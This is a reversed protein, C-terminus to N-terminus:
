NLETNTKTHPSLIIRTAPADVVVTGGTGAPARGPHALDARRCLIDIAENSHAHAEHSEGV